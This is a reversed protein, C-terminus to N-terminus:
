TLAMVLALGLSVKKESSDREQKQMILHRQLPPPSASLCDDIATKRPNPSDLKEHGEGGKLADDATEQRSWATPSRRPPSGVVQAIERINLNQYYVAAGKEAKPAACSRRTLAIHETPLRRQCPCCDLNVRRDVYRHWASRRYDRCVNVAIRM